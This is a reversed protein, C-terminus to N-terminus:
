GRLAEVPDLRSAKIAPYTGAAMSLIVALATFSLFDIPKILVPLSITMGMPSQMEIGRLQLAVAAGLLCGALSGLLGLVASEFIFLWRIMSPSAGMAMLMGIERTKEAVLMNM